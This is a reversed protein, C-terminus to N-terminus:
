LLNSAFKGIKEWREADKKIEEYTKGLTPCRNLCFKLQFVTTLRVFFHNLDPRSIVRECTELLEYPHKELIVAAAGYVDNRDNSNLVIQILECYNPLPTRYYGNECGWGFDYLLCPIWISGDTPSIAWEGNEQEVLGFDCATRKNFRTSMVFYKGM